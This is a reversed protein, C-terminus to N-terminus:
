TDSKSPVPEIPEFLEALPLRFGPLIDGGELVGDAPVGYVRTLSEYVQVITLAPYVVWVLKVGARFYDDITELLENAGDNPSVVEVALDPIVDWVHEITSKLRDAPWRERSVYALDPRRSREPDKRQPIRFLVEVVVNGARTGHKRLNHNLEYALNSAVIGAYYSMPPMEVRQGNVVEYFVDDDHQQEPQAIEAASEALGIAAM